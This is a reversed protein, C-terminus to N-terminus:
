ALGNRFPNPDLLDGTGGVHFVIALGAEEAQRWVPDHAM